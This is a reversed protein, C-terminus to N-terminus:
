ASRADPGPQGACRRPTCCRRGGPAGAKPSSSRCCRSDPRARLRRSVDVRDGHLASDALPVRHRVAGRRRRSRQRAVRDLRDAAAARRARRRGADGAVLPAEDAHLRDLYIVLTALALAAALLNARAGAARPRRGVAGPRVHRADTPPVRGDPLPRMRTRRMLADTDREYVQNLVAAGGAVLATGAVAQAMPWWIRRPRDRGPLLGAASTAVVLVNLRPKTLAVYDASRAGVAPAIRRVAGAVADARADKVRAAGRRPRRPGDAAAAAARRPRLERVCRRGGSAPRWTRGSTADPKLRVTQTRVAGALKAADDGAVDDAGARRLRRARQQDVLRAPEARHARRAHGARRRARRAAAGPARARAPRPAAVLRSRSTRSRGRASVVLAGVRHAFHIAIKPDWHTPVLDGFMLPFDPIALGAGTHRM